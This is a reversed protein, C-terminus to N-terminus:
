KGGHYLYNEDDENRNLDVGNEKVIQDIQEDSADPPLLFDKIVKERQEKTYLSKKKEPSENNEPNTKEREM